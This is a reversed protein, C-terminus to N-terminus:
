LSFLKWPISRNTTRNILQLTCRITIGSGVDIPIPESRQILDADTGAVFSGAEILRETGSALVMTYVRLFMVEGSALAGMDAEFVYTTAIPVTRASEADTETTASMTLTGSTVVALAM